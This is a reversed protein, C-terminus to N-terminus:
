PKMEPPRDIWRRCISSCSIALVMRTFSSLDEAVDGYSFAMLSVEEVVSRYTVFIGDLLGEVDDEWEEAVVNVDNVGFFMAFLSSGSRWGLDGYLPLFDRRVEHVFDSGHPTISANITDASRAFCYTEIYSQNYETTLYM